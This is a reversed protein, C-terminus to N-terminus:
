RKDPKSVNLNFLIERPNFFVQSILLFANPVNPRKRKLM